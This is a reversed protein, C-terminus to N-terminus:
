MMGHGFPDEGTWREDAPEEALQYRSDTSLRIRQDANTNDLSCHLTFMGFILVDGPQFETTLWRGGYTSHVSGPDKTLWGGVYPNHDKDRDVDLKGYTSLLGEFQHSGELVALPGDSFPVDGLPTWATYLRQTGRGM